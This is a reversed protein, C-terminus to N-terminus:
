LVVGSSQAARAPFSMGKAVDSASVVYVTSTFAYDYEYDVGEAIQVARRTERFRDFGDDHLVAVLYLAEDANEPEYPDDNLAFIQVLRDRYHQRLREALRAFVEVKMPTQVETM